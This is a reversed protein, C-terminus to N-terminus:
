DYWRVLSVISHLYAALLHDVAGRVREKEHFGSHIYVRQKGARCALMSGQSMMQEHPRIWFLSWPLSKDMAVGADRLFGFGGQGRSSRAPFFASKGRRM